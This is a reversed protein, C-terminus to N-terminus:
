DGCKGAWEMIEYATTHGCNRLQMLTDMTLESVYKLQSRELINIARISLPTLDKPLLKDNRIVRIIGDSVPHEIEIPAPPRCKYLEMRVNQLEVVMAALLSTVRSESSMESIATTESHPSDLGWAAAIRKGLERYPRYM